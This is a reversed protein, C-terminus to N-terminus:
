SEIASGAGGDEPPRLEPFYASKEVRLNTNKPNGARNSCMNEVGVVSDPPGPFQNLFALRLTRAESILTSIV